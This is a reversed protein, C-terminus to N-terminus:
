PQFQIWSFADRAADQVSGPPQTFEPSSKAGLAPRQARLRLRLRGAADLRPKQKPALRLVAAFDGGTGTLTRVPSDRWTDALVSDDVWQLWAPVGPLAVQPQAAADELLTGRVCSVGGGFPYNRAPALELTILKPATNPAPVAPVEAQM